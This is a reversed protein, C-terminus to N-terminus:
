PCDNLGITTGGTGTGLPSATKYACRTGNPASVFTAPPATNNNTITCSPGCQGETNVTAINNQVTINSSNVGENGGYPRIGGSNVCVNNRITSNHINGLHMCYYNDTSAMNIVNNEILFDSSPGDPAMIGQEVQYFYNDHIHIFNSAYPQLSDVHTSCGGMLIDVFINNPGIETGDVDDQIGDSCGNTGLGGIISNKIQIGNGHLSSVGGFCGGCPGVLGIRGENCGQGVNGISIGDLVINMVGGNPVHFCITGTYNINKVTFNKATTAFNSSAFNVTAGTDAQVTVMSSKASGNFAGYSGSALCLTQGGALASYQASFNATTANLDCGAGGGGGGGGGGTVGTVILGGVVAGVVVLGGVRQGFSSTYGGEDKILRRLARRLRRM